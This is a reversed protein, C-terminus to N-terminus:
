KFWFLDWFGWRGSKGVDWRCGLWRCILFFFFFFLFFLFFFFFLKPDIPTFKPIPPENTRRSLDLLIDKQQKKCPPTSNRMESHCRNKYVPHVHPPKLLVGWGIACTYTQPRCSAMGPPTITTHLGLMHCLTSSM